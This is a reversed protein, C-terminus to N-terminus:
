RFLSDIQSRHLGIDKLSHDSLAYLETRARAVTWARQLRLGQNWLARAASLALASVAEARARRARAIIAEQEEITM